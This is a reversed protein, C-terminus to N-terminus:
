TRYREKEDSTLKDFEEWAGWFGVPIRERPEHDRRLSIPGHYRHMEFLFGAYDYVPHFGCIVGVPKGDVCIVECPM